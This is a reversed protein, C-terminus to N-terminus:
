TFPVLSKQTSKFLPLGDINLSLTLTNINGLVADANHKVQFTNAWKALDESLFLEEDSEEDSETDPLIVATEDIVEERDSNNDFPNSNDSM